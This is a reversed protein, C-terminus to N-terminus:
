EYSIMKFAPAGNPFNIVKQATDRNDFYDDQSIVYLTNKEKLNQQTIKKFEYKDFKEITTFGFNNDGIKKSLSQYKAPDYKSYFLVLIYPQDYRNTFVIQERKDKLSETYSVAESFGYQWELAYQKPLHIFYQHLFLTIFYALLVSSLAALPIKLGKKAKKIYEFIGGLGLGSILTLPIVMSHARLATPSQYTLAAAIPAVLLWLFIIRTNEYKRKLLLFTGIFITFIEFFYMQGMFPVKNRGLADGSVFLFSPSFHEFYNNIFNYGYATIKNHFVKASLSNQNQHEGREENLRNIPGLDGFISVGQFRALGQGSIFIILLPILLIACIVLIPLLKKFNLKKFFLIFFGLLMVPVVLRTSQYVYISAIFSIGSILYYKPDSLAKVFGLVGLLIFFTAVNSEWAGRSFHIHWPSIALLFGTSLAAIENKFIKKSLLYILFVSATGLLISPFRVALETLGFLAVFPIALYVYLGPKYDSFSKFVVPFNQGWEDKGTKIISYANYGLAAEDANFGAPSINLNITRLFFGLAVILILLFNKKWIM